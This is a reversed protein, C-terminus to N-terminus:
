GPPWRMPRGGLIHVHIHFVSQGAGAGNNIVLRFDDLKLDTRAIEGSKRMLYGILEDDDPKLSSIKDIPKKPIVLVYVPAQPNIDKFALVLDDEYVVDVAIEKNIIKTFITEEAM